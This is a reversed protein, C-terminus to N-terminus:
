ERVAFLAWTLAGGVSWLIWTEATFYSYLMLALGVLVEKINAERRGEKFAWLGILSFMLMGFLATPTPLDM